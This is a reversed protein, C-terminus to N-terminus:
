PAGLLTLQRVAEVHAAVSHRQYWTWARQGVARMADAQLSGLGDIGVYNDGAILGDRTKAGYGPAPLIVPCIGYAAYAGLVGSKALYPMPYTMVGVTAKTFLEAIKAASLVGHSVFDTARAFQKSIENSVPAGVDHVAFGQTAAWQSLREGHLRYTQERLGPGGFIVM